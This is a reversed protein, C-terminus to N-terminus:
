VVLGYEDDEYEYVMPLLGEMYGLFDPDYPFTGWHFLEPHYRVEQLGLQSIKKSWLQVSNQLIDISSIKEGNELKHTITSPIIVTRTDADIVKTLLEVKKYEQKDEYEQILMSKQLTGTKGLERFIAETTAEDSSMADFIKEDFMQDLVARSVEFLPHKNLFPDKARFDIVEGQLDAGHRNVRGGTQILSAVSCSERFATKFSFDIGAEVCSTAVLTWDPITRQGLMQNIFKIIKGRDNPTLSTSLHLVNGGTKRMEHAIVAASQVTNLIVLRPGPKTLVFEILEKRNLPLRRAPFVVREKEFGHLKKRLSTPLVSHVTHPANSFSPHEWFKVLSGSALVFHCTWHNALEQFWKWHQPWLHLPIATHAEDIFVASGPLEHLKRLTSTTSSSLTEFFQVASTVIIPAKWLTAFQRSNLNSFDARHYHAAIIEEPNEGNLVLSRRYVDVSQEIINTYPLVVIIHRLNKVAAVSLLHAMVATTKGTGVPADCYILPYDIDGNLCAQYMEDRLRNRDDDTGIGSLNRIYSNLADLRELWHLDNINSLLCEGGYHCATDHHDADVLCSLALRLSLSQLVLTDQALNVEPFENNHKALYESLNNDTESAIEMDRFALKGDNKKLEESLSFLGTHHCYTLIGGNLTRKRLLWATGADTHNVPLKGGYDTKALVCQNRGDLKGLDHFLAGSKIANDFAGKQDGPGSFYALANKMNERANRVVSQVHTKYLQEPVGNRASHALLATM